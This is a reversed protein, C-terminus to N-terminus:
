LPLWYWMAYTAAHLAALTMAMAIIPKSITIVFLKRDNDRERQQLLEDHRREISSKRQVRNGDDDYETSDRHGVDANAWQGPTHSAIKRSPDYQTNVRVYHKQPRPEDWPATDDEWEDQGWEDTIDNM